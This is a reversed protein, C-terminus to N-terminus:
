LQDSGFLDVNRFALLIRFSLWFLALGMRLSFYGFIVKLQFFNLMDGRALEVQDKCHRIQIYRNNLDAFVHM